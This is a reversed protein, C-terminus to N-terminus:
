MPRFATIYSTTGYYYDQVDETTVNVPMLVFEMDEPKIEDKALLYRIYGRM